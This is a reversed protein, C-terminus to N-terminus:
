SNVKMTGDLLRAKGRPADQDARLTAIPDQKVPTLDATAFGFQRLARDIKAANEPHIAVWIDLDNRCTSL